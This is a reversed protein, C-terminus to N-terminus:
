IVTIRGSQRKRLPLSNHIFSKCLVHEFCELSHQKSVRFDAKRSECRAELGEAVPRRGLPLREVRSQEITQRDQWPHTRGTHDRLEREAVHLVHARELDVPARRRAAGIQRMGVPPGGRRSIERRNADAQDGSAQELRAVRETRRADRDDVLRGRRPVPWSRAGDPLPQAVVARTRLVPTFDDTDNAGYM